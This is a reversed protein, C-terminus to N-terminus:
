FPLSCTQAASAVIQPGLKPGLLTIVQERQMVIDDVIRVGFDYLVQARVRGLGKVRLLDLIEDPVGYVIKFVTDELCRVNVEVDIEKSAIYTLCAVMRKLEKFYNQLPTRIPPPLDKRQDYQDGSLFIALYYLFATHTGYCEQRRLQYHVTDPIQDAKIPIIANMTEGAAIVSCAQAHDRVTLKLLGTYWKCVDMPDFYFYAAAKGLITAYVEPPKDEAQPVYRIAQAKYLYDLMTQMLTPDAQSQVYALTKEYWATLEAVTATNNNAIVSITHFALWKKQNLESTIKYTGRVYAKWQDADKKPILQWVMGYECSAQHGARGAMQQLTDQEVITLGRHVGAIIVNTVAFDCGIALTSTAVLCRVQTLFQSEIVRREDMSLDACHFRAAYGEEQLKKECAYGFKKSQVFILAPAPDLEHVLALVAKMKNEESQKYNNSHHYGVFQYHLPTPRWASKIAHVKRNSLNTLWTMIDQLSQDEISASVGIIRTNGHRKREFYGIVCAELGNGRDSMGLTHIEDSVFLDTLQIWTEANRSRLAVAFAEPTLIKIQNDVLDQTKVTSYDGTKVTLSYPYLSHNPNRWAEAKEEVLAKQPAVVVVHGGRRVVSYIAWEYIMTKGCGTGAAVLLHRDDSFVTHYCAEQVPNPDYISKFGTHAQVQQATLM